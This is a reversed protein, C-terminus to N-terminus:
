QIKIKMSKLSKKYHLKCTVRIAKSIYNENTIIKKQCSVKKNM